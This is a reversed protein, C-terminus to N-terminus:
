PRSPLAPPVLSSLSMESQFWAKGPRIIMPPLPRSLGAFDIRVLGPFGASAPWTDHWGPPADATLRGFYRFSLQVEPPAITLSSTQEGQMNPSLGRATVRPGTSLEVHLAEGPWFAPSTSVTLFALGTSTGEFLARTDGPVPSILAHEVWQRLERRALASEVEATMVDGRSFSRATGGLGSSLLMAVMAMVLLAVMTELLTIGSQFDRGNM